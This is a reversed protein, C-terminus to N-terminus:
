FSASRKRGTGVSIASLITVLIVLVIVLASLASGTVSKLLGTLIFTAVVLTSLFFIPPLKRKLSRYPYQPILM